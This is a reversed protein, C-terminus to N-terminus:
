QFLYIITRWPYASTCILDEIKQSTVCSLWSGILAAYRGLLTLDWIFYIFYVFLYFLNRDVIVCRLWRGILAAYRGLLTLDWIFLYFVYIFLIFEEWCFVSPQWGTKWELQRLFKMWKKKKVPSVFLTCNAPMLLLMTLPDVSPQRSGFLSHPPTSFIAYDPPPHNSDSRDGTQGDGSGCEKLFIRLAPAM